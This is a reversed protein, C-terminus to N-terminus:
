VGFKIVQFDAKPVIGIAMFPQQVPNFQVV